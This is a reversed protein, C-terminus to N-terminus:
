IDAFQIAYSGAGSPRWEPGSREVTRPFCPAFVTGRGPRNLACPEGKAQVQAFRRHDIGKAM